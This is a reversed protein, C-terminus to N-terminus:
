EIVTAGWLVEERSQGDSSWGDKEYFRTARQNGELVWLIGTVFSMERLHKRANLMLLRGVGQGWFNPDVYLAFLEGIDTMKDDLTAGCMSFGLIEDGETAVITLPANPGGDGFTYRAARDEAKMHSLVDAEILGEYGVQWSRVHVRAVNVKDQEDAARLSVMAFGRM